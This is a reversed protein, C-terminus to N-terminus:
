ELNMKKKRGASYALKEALRETDGSEITERYARLNVELTKIVSCLASANMSFLETWLPVDLAAVRTCGRFSGGEFGRCRFLDPDDCVSVALIHMVQSTYAIIADHEKPTTVVVDRFKMHAAMRRLLAINQPRSNERPTIIYHAGAFIAADANEVGSTEKGAMPHSGIFDVSEPLVTAGDMIAGKIGGVDTVLAGPRFTDRLKALMDIIGRPDMCLYVVDASAIADETNEGIEDILGRELARYCVEPSKDTGVVKFDEFGRLAQAISGGILGLGVIVAKRM